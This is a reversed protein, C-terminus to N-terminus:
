LIGMSQSFFKVLQNSIAYILNGFVRKRRGKSALITSSQHNEDTTHPVRPFRLTM